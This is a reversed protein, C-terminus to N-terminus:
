FIGIVTADTGTDNVRKAQIPSIWGALVSYVIVTDNEDVLAVDGDTLAYIIMKRPLNDDDDPTIEVHSQPFAATIHWTNNM